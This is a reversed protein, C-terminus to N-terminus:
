ARVACGQQRHDQGLDVDGVPDVVAHLPVQTRAQEALLHSQITVIPSSHDLTLLADTPM